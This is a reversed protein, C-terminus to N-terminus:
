AKNTCEEKMQLKAWQSDVYKQIEDLIPKNAPALLHKFRSQM